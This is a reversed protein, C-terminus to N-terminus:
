YGSTHCSIKTSRVLQQKVFQFPEDYLRKVYTNWESAERKFGTGPLWNPLYQVILLSANFLVRDSQFRKCFPIFDVTSADAIIVVGTPLLVCTGLYLGANGTKSLSEMANGALIVYPDDQSKIEMGFTIGLIIAGAMSPHVPRNSLNM